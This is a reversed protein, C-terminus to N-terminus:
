GLDVCAYREARLSSRPSAPPHRHDYDRIDEVHVSMGDRDRFGLTVSDGHVQVVTVVIEDGIVFRDGVNRTLVSM